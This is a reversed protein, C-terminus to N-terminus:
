VRQRPRACHLRRQDAPDGRRGLSPFPNAFTIYNQPNWFYNNSARREPDSFVTLNNMQNANNFVGGGMRVVWGEAPRYAIGVRPWFRNKEATYLPIPERGTRRLPLRLSCIDARVISGCRESSGTRRMWPASM